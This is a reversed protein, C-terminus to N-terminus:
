QCFELPAIIDFNGTLNIPETKSIESADAVEHNKRQINWCHLRTVLLFDGSQVGFITEGLPEDYKNLRDSYSKALQVTFDCRRLDVGGMAEIYAAWDGSDAAIYAMALCDDAPAESVHRLERWVGIPPGGIQYLQLILLQWSSACERHQRNYSQLLLM